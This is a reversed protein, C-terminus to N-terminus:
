SQRAKLMEDAHMYRAQSRYGAKLVACGTAQYTQERIASYQEKVDEESAHIALYDRLTMGNAHQRSSNEYDCCSDGLPFAPDSM